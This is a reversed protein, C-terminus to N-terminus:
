VAEIQRLFSLEDHCLWHEALQGDQVRWIHIQAIEITRNTPEWQQFPGVHLARFRTRIVVRDESAIVDQPTIEIDAFTTNVRRIVERFGDPGHLGLRQETFDAHTVEEVAPGSDGTAVLELARLALQDTTLTTTDTM